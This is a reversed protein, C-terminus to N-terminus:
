ADAADKDAFGFNPKSWPRSMPRIVVNGPLKLHRWSRILGYIAKNYSSVNICVKKGVHPRTDAAAVVVLLRASDMDGPNWTLEVWAPVV